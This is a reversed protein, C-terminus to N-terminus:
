LLQFQWQNMWNWTFIQVQPTVNYLKLSRNLNIYSWKQVPSLYLICIFITKINKLTFLFSIPHVLNHVWQAFPNRRWALFSVVQRVEKSIGVVPSSVLYKRTLFVTPGIYCLTTGRTSLNYLIQLIYPNSM